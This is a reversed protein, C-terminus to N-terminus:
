ITCFYNHNKFKEAYVTLLNYLCNSIGRKTCNTIILTLEQIFDLGRFGGGAMQLELIVAHPRESKQGSFSSPPLYLRQRYYSDSRGVQEWLRATSTSHVALSLFCVPLQFLLSSHSLFVQARWEGGTFVSKVLDSLQCSRPLQPWNFSFYSLNQQPKPKLSTWSGSGVAADFPIIPVPGDTALILTLGKIDRGTHRHTYTHM